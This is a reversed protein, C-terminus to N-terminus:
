DMEEGTLEGTSSQRRGGGDPEEVQDGGRKGQEDAVWLQPLAETVKDGWQV